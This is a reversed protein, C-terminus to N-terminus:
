DLKDLHGGDNKGNAKKDHRVRYNVKDAYLSQIVADINRRTKREQEKLIESADMQNYDM